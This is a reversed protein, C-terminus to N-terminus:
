RPENAVGAAAPMARRLANAADYHLAFFNHLALAPPPATRMGAM